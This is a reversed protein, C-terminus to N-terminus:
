IKRNIMSVSISTCTGTTQCFSLVSQALSSDELKGYYSGNRYVYTNRTSGGFGNMGSCDLYVYTSYDVDECVLVTHLELSSPNKMRAKLDKCAEIAIQKESSNSGGNFISYGSYAFGANPIVFVVCLIAAVIAKVFRKRRKIATIASKVAKIFLVAGLITNFVFIAILLYVSQVIADPAVMSFVIVGIFEVILLLWLLLARKLYSKEKKNGPNEQSDDKTEEPKKEPLVADSNCMPNGCKPCATAKDSIEAGCEPCKILAM